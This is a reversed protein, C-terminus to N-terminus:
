PSKQYEIAKDTSGLLDSYLSALHTYLNQNNKNLNVYKEYYDIAILTDKKEFDKSRFLM